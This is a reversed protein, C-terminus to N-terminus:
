WQWLLSVHTIILGFFEIIRCLSCLCFNGECIHRMVDLSLLTPRGRKNREPENNRKWKIYRYMVQKSIGNHICFRTFAEGRECLDNKNEWSAFLRERVPANEPSDWNKRAKKKRQGINVAGELHARLTVLSRNTKGDSSASAAEAHLTAQPSPEM